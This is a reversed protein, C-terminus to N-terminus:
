FCRGYTGTDSCEANGALLLTEPSQFGPLASSLPSVYTVLPWSESTMGKQPKLRRVSEQDVSHSVKGGCSGGGHIRDSKGWCSLSFSTLFRSGFHIRGGKLPEAMYKTVAILSAVLVLGRDM